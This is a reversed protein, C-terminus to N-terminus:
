SRIRRQLIRKLAESRAPHPISFPQLQVEIAREIPTAPLWNNNGPQEARLLVTGTEGTFTLVQGDLEAPGSILSLIVGLGSSSTPALVLPPADNRVAAPTDFQISQGAPEIIWIGELSDQWGPATARIEYRGADVPPSTSGNYSILLTDVPPDANIPVPLARGSYTASGAVQQLSLGSAYREAIFGDILNEILVDYTSANFHFCDLGGFAFRTRMAAAPSPQDLEGPVPISGPPRGPLGFFNQAQGLHFVHAIRENDDALDAVSGIVKQLATNLALPDPRGMRVWLPSCTSTWILGNRTDEFNSYDYLSLLIEIHESQNLVFSALLELNRRIDAILGSLQHQTFDANWVSLFDNGGVTLQVTDIHPHTILEDAIRQLNHPMLWDATTSASITTSRGSVGVQGLDRQDFVRRHSGDRWQEQAWSDGIVLFRVPDAPDAASPGPIAALLLALIIVSAPRM